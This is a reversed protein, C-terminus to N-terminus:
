IQWQKKTSAATTQLFYSARHSSGRGPQHCSPCRCVCFKACESGGEVQQDLKVMFIAASSSHTHTHM